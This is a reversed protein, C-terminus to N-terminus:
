RRNEKPPNGHNGQYSEATSDSSEAEEALIADDVIKAVANITMAVFIEANSREGPDRIRNIYRDMWELSEPVHYGKRKKIPNKM